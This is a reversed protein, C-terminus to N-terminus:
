KSDCFKEFLSKIAAQTHIYTFKILVSIESPDKTMPTWALSSGRLKFEPKMVSGSKECDM